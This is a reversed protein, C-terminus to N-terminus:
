QNHQRNLVVVIIIMNNNIFIIITMVVQQDRPSSAGQGRRRSTRTGPELFPSRSLTSKIPIMMKNMMMMMMMMMMKNQHGAGLFPEQENHKKNPNCRNGDSAKSTALIHVFEM